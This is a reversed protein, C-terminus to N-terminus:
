TTSVAQPMVIKVESIWGPHPGKQEVIAHQGPADHDYLCTAHPGDCWENTEVVRLTASNGKASLLGLLELNLPAQPLTLQQFPPKTTCKHNDTIRHLHHVRRQVRCGQHSRYLGQPCIGDWTHAGQGGIYKM